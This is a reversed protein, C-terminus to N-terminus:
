WCFVDMLARVAEQKEREARRYHRVKAACQRIREFLAHVDPTMEGVLKEFGALISEFLEECEMLVCWAEMREAQDSSKVVINMVTAVANAVRAKLLPRLSDLSPAAILVEGGIAQVDAPEQPESPPPYELVRVWSADVKSADVADPLPQNWLQRLFHAREEGSEVYRADVALRGGYRRGLYLLSFLATETWAYALFRHSVGDHTWTEVALGPEALSSPLETPPTSDEPLSADLDSCILRAAEGTLEFATQRRGAAVANNVAVLFEVSLPRRPIPEDLSPPSM